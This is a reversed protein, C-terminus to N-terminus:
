VAVSNALLNKVGYISVFNAFNVVVLLWRVQLGVVVDEFRLPLEEAVEGGQEVAVAAPAEPASRPQYKAHHRISAPTEVQKGGGPQQKGGKAHEINRMLVANMFRDSKRERGANSFVFGVRKADAEAQAAAQAAAEAANKAARYAAHKVEWGTLKREPPLDNLRQPCHRSCSPSTSTM